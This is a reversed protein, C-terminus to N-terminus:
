RWRRAQWISQRTTVATYPGGPCRRKFGTLDRVVRVKTRRVGRVRLGELRCLGTFVRGTPMSRRRRALPEVSCSRGFSLRSPQHDRHPRPTRAPHHTPTHPSTTAAATGTLASTTTPSTASEADLLRCGLDFARGRGPGPAHRTTEAVPMGLPWTSRATCGVSRGLRKSWCEPAKAWQAVLESRALISLTTLTM